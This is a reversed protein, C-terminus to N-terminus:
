VRRRRETRIGSTAFPRPEDHEPGDSVRRLLVATCSWAEQMADPWHGMPAGCSCEADGLVLEEVRPSRVRVHGALRARAVVLESNAEELSRRAEEVKARCGEVAERYRLERLDEGMVPRDTVTTTPVPTSM